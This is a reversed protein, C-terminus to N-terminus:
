KRRRIDHRHEAEHVRERIPPPVVAQQEEVWSETTVIEPEHGLQRCVAHLADAVTRAERDDGVVGRIIHTWRKM